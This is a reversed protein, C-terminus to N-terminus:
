RVKRLQRPGDVAADPPSLRVKVDVVSCARPGVIVPNLDLEAVEPVDVALRGVNVILREIETTDVKPAGRFGELLPALRLGHLARASDTASIPPVLFVRDDWVDTAIGGAAVMVLPGLGPDRVLGVAIEVGSVLPQVLVDVDAGIEVRFDAAAQRVAAASELGVRVLRRETKHVVDASAVKLVVPYGCESAAGVIAGRGRATTGVTSIGYAGLISKSDSQSLWGQTLEAKDMLRRAQDRLRRVETTDTSPASTRPVSLWAAYDAAHALSRVAVATSRYTTLRIGSSPTLGGLPVLLVPTDPHQARVVELADVAAVGDSVGTAVLVALVADVEGSSSVEDLIRALAEPSAGAGADIPNSTGTTGQLLGTIRARLATSFEPVTLGLDEALDAGLVGMGGANSIVALRRGRPLPQETLLLATQALDEADACGIVGAQAFLARVGVASTAAAATHSAGARQGGASRGGVVALLPKRESFRRAMRAFKRANGFSELYLAALSVSPDDYWAALLDNSSVDAKNGLSVFDRVGIGLERALDMLVIGVGGSQCALALGGTPPLTESFTANLRIDPHNSVLGLCNPGVVRIGRARAVTSLERQLGVGQVGLEEFGSSIVVAAPVRADAADRLATVAAAAPVAIVALDVGGPIAGASRFAPVGDIADASPHIVSLRGLYGASRISRLVAAGIGTGDRRVGVVAVSRPALMPQLSRAESRCERDDAAEQQLTTVSTSLEVEIVGSDLHRVVEFGADAFVSLMSHNEPLVDAEFRAIGLDRAVAALHELLLTGLGHGRFDDAVLFAVESAGLRLPEATALAVLRGGVEAVLALTEPDGLVHDVYAHATNRTVSFFRLRLAEDSVRAHLDHLAPGDDPSLRRVVGLSGDSLLVDAPALASSVTM